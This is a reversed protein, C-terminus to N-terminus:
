TSDEKKHVRSPDDPDTVTISPGTSVDAGVADIPNAAPQAGPSIEEEDIHLGGRGQAIDSAASGAPKTAIGGDDDEEGSSPDDSFDPSDLNQLHPSKMMVGPSRPDDLINGANAEDDDSSEEAHAVQALPHADPLQKSPATPLQALAEDDNAFFSNRPSNVDILSESKALIDRYGQRDPDNARKTRAKDRKTTPRVVIVPVPSHQLCYKSVSGPLLGQFGGLSKGRTGVVLIAPEYLNIMDDIVKNVKGISFELILNIAKNDHNRAQIDRMTAEAETRYRGSEVSRDGAIADEKEVVRLCVIEDGDDVLENILWQLAYVSYENEDFGCLFTRSRKTYEYDKHKAILTFSSEEIFDAPKDFTDFSVRPQFVPPPPPSSLRRRQRPKPSGRPLSANRHALFQISPRRPEDLGHQGTIPLQLPSVAYGASSKRAAPSANRAAKSTPSASM